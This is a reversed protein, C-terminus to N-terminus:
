RCSTALEDRVAQAAAREDDDAAAREWDEIRSLAQECADEAGLRAARVWAAARDPLVDRRKPHAAVFADWERALRLSPQPDDAGLAERTMRALDKEWDSESRGGEMLRMRDPVVQATGEPSRYLSGDAVPRSRADETAPTPEPTVVPAPPAPPSAAKAKERSEKKAPTGNGTAATGSGLYGLARLQERVEPPTAEAEPARPADDKSLTVGRMGEPKDAGLPREADGIAVPVDDFKDADAREEEIGGAAFEDGESRLAAEPAPRLVPGPEGLTDVPPRGVAVEAPRDTEWWPQLGAILLAVVVTAASGLAVRRGRWWSAAPREAEPRAAGAVAAGARSVDAVEREIAADVRSALAEWEAESREPMAGALADDAASYGALVAACEECADLHADVEATAAADLEGDLYASLRERIRACRENM